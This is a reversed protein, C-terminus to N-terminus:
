EKENGEFRGGRRGSFFLVSVPVMIAEPGNRSISIFINWQTDGTDVCVCGASHMCKKEERRQMRARALGSEMVIGPRRPLSLLIGGLLLRM